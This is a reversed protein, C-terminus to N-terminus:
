TFKIKLFAESQEYWSLFDKEEVLIQVQVLSYVVYKLGLNSYLVGIHDGCRFCSLNFISDICFCNVLNAKMRQLM